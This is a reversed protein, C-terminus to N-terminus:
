LQTLDWPSEISYHTLDWGLEYSFLTQAPGPSIGHYKLGPLLQSRAPQGGSKRWESISLQTGMGALGLGGARPSAAPLPQQPSGVRACCGRSRTELQSVQRVVSRCQGPEALRFALPAAAVPTGQGHEARVGDTCVVGLSLWGSSQVVCVDERLPFM